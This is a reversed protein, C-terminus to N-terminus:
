LSCTVLEGLPQEARFLRLEQERGGCRTAQLEVRTVLRLWTHAQVHTSAGKWGVRCSLVRSGLYFRGGCAALLASCQAGVTGGQVVPVVLEDDVAALLGVLQGVDYVREDGAGVAGSLCM